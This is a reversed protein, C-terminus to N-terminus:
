GIGKPEVAHLYDLGLSKRLYGYRSSNNKTELLIVIDPTHLQNQELLNNLSTEKAEIAFSMRPKTDVPEVCLDSESYKVEQHVRKKRKHENMVAEIIPALDFPDDGM